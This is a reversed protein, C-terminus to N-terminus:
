NRRFHSPTIGSRKQFFKSFASQDSFHLKETIQQISLSTKLLSRAESYLMNFILESPTQGMLKQVVRTLQHTSYHLRQAYFDVKHQERYHHTLLNIFELTKQEYRSPDPMPNDEESQGIADGLEIYFGILANHLAHEYHIHHTRAILSQLLAFREQIYCMSQISVKFYPRQYLKVAYKTHKHMEEVQFMRDIFLRTVLLMDAIFDESCSVFEVRHSPSLQVVFHPTLRIIHNNINLTCEGQIVWFNFISSLFVKKGIFHRFEEECIQHCYINRGGIGLLDIANILDM